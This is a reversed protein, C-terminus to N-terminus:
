KDVTYYHDRENIIDDTEETKVGTLQLSVRPHYSTNATAHPINAWDFIHIEGAEWRKYMRNGYMYFQGPEWDTLMITIRVIKSPDEPYYQYLKDIHLNWLQGTTQVHIRKQINDLKFYDAIMNIKNYQECDTNFNILEIDTATGVASLDYEEHTLLDNGGEDRTAWTVSNSNEIVENLENSWNGHFKGCVRYCEGEGDITTNDFHYNSNSKTWEWNSNYFAPDTLYHMKKSDYKFAVKIEKKSNKYM